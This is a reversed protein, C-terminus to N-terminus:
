KASIDLVLRLPHGKHSAFFFVFGFLFAYIQIEWKLWESVATGTNMHFTSVLRNLPEFEYRKKGLNM